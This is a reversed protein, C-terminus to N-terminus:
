NSGSFDFSYKFSCTGAKMFGLSGAGARLFGHFRKAFWRGSRGWRKCNKNANFYTAGVASVILDISKGRVKGCKYVM